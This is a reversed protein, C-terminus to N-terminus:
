SEFFKRNRQIFEGALPLSEPTGIDLFDANTVCVKIRSRRAVLAPFVDTEFSLPFKTPFQDVTSARFLYVGANIIGAGPRKETFATLDGQANQQITGFRSADAMPVGLIAGDTDPVNLSQILPVLSALALSDGNLVWWAVPHSQSERIANLFGGATGLPSTERICQVQVNKVPQTAFHREIVEALHGTSLIINRIRQAALYHVIWEVFPRGAVPAMPKPIDPLLREVRKGFGGALVVATTHEPLISM